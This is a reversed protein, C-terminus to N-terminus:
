CHLTVQWTVPSSFSLTRNGPEVDSALSAFSPQSINGHIDLLGGSVIIGGAPWLQTGARWM